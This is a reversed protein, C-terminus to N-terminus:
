ERLPRPEILTEGAKANENDIKQVEEWFDAGTAGSVAIPAAETIEKKTEANM